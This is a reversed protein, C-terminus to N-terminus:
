ASNLFHKWSVDRRHESVIDHSDIELTATSSNVLSTTSRGPLPTTSTSGLSPASHRESATPWLVQACSGPCLFLSSNSGCGCTEPCVARLYHPFGCLETALASCGDSGLPDGSWTGLVHIFTDLHFTPFDAASGSAFEAVSSHVCSRSALTSWTTQVGRTASRRATGQTSALFM